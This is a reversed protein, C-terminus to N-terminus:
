GGQERVPLAVAVSTMDIALMFHILLVFAYISRARKRTVPMRSNM